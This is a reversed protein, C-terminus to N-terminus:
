IHILSLHLAIWVRDFEAAAFEAMSREAPDWAQADVGNSRLAKLVAAGTDLSVDRESSHGGLMVAVRGFHDAETVVHREDVIQKIATM